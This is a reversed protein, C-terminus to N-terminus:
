GGNWLVNKPPLSSEHADGCVTWVYKRFKSSQPLEDEDFRVPALILEAEGAADTASNLDSKANM